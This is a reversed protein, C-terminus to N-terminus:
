GQKCSGGGVDWAVPVGEGREGQGPPQLLARAGWGWLWRDGRGSGSAHRQRHVAQPSGCNAQRVRDDLFVYCVVAGLLWRRGGEMANIVSSKRSECVPRGSVIIWINSRVAEKSGGVAVAVWGGLMANIVSSKGSNFEGVVAVLFADDLAAVSDRLLSLEGM